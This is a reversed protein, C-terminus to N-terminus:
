APMTACAPKPLATARRAASTPLFRRRPTCCAREFVVGNAALLDIAPTKVKRYGFIPLHDARLTDISIIIVPREAAGVRPTAGAV